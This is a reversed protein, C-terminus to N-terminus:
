KIVFKKNNIQPGGYEVEFELPQSKTERISVVSRLVMDIEQLTMVRDNHAINNYKPLYNLMSIFHRDLRRDIIKNFDDAKIESIGSSIVDAFSEDIEYGISNRGLLMAAKMTTGTGAFPDLVTDGIVSFMSMLRYPIELPFAGSRERGSHKPMLQRTGNIEWVDSFWANREEWFYSSERRTKKETDTKFERKGGKRFVLIHEHENTVYAGCPLMGSGMFKNPSNSPKRWIIDPLCTFGLGTCSLIIRSHNSFLEFRRNFTRTADGINICLFGGSKVIRYCEKWVADLEAHMLEFADRPRESEIALRIDPNQESFIVDWMEIM